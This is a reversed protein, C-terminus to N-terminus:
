LNTSVAATYPHSPLAANYATFLVILLMILMTTIKSSNALTQAQFEFSYYSALQSELYLPPLSNPHSFSTQTGARLTDWCAPLSTLEFHICCEREHVRVVEMVEGCVGECQLWVGV